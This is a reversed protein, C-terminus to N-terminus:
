IHCAMRSTRQDRCPYARIIPPTQQTLLFKIRNNKHNRTKLTWQKLHHFARKGHGKGVYFPLNDRPDFYIYTYYIPDPM